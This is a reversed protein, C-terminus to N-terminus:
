KPCRACMEMFYKQYAQQHLRVAIRSNIVAADYHIHCMGNTEVDSFEIETYADRWTMISEDLLTAIAVPDHLAEGKRFAILARMASHIAPNEPAQMADFESLPILSERTVNLGIMDIPIGSQFVIRSALADHGMNAETYPGINGRDTTGGMMVIKRIYNKLDPYVSLAIAPNTLPGVTVLVIPEPSNKATAYLADWARLSLPRAATAPLQIDGLGNEGHFRAVPPGFPATLFQDSGRAVPVDDRGFLSLIRLANETTVETANNGGESTVLKLDFYDRFVCGFALCFFDDVGPDTDIIIPLPKKM